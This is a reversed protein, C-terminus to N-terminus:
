KLQVFAKAQSAQSNCDPKYFTSSSTGNLDSRLYGTLCSCTRGWEPCPWKEGEGWVQVSTVLVCASMRGKKM